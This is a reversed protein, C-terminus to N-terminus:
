GHQVHELGYRFLEAVHEDDLSYHVYRGEKRARVIRMQRLHRLHHSTSTESIGAIRALSGVNQEGESLASLIQIRSADGLTRFLEALDAAAHESLAPMTLVIYSYTNLYEPQSTDHGPGSSDGGTSAVGAIRWLEVGRRRHLRLLPRGPRDPPRRPGRRRPGLPLRGRAPMRMALAYNFDCDHLRGQSDVHIQHRCMLGSVTEPNFAGALLDM